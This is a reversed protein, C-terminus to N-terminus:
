VRDLFGLHVEPPDAIVSGQVAFSTTAVGGALVGGAGGDDVEDGGWGAGREFDEHM